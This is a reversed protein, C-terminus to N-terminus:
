RDLTSQTGLTQRHWERRIWPVQFWLYHLPRARVALVRNLNASHPPWDCQLHGDTDPINWWMELNGCGLSPSELRKKGKEESKWTTFVNSGFNSSYLKGSYGGSGTLKSARLISSIRRVMMTMSTGASQSSSSISVCKARAPSTFYARNASFLRWFCTMISYQSCFLTMSASFNCPVSNRPLRKFM